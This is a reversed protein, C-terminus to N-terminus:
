AFRATCWTRRSRASIARRQQSSTRRAAAAPRLARHDDREVRGLPLRPRLDRAPPPRLPLGAGLDRPLADRLARLRAVQGHARAPPAHELGRPSSQRRERATHRRPRAPLLLLGRAPPLRRPRTSRSSSTATSTARRSGSRSSAELEDAHALRVVREVKRRPVLRLTASYVVGFLGYGGCVLRFLDRNEDRSCTRAVGDPGVVVLSEVDAVFPGFALGRRPREGLGRRRHLPRGRGDAEPPDGVAHRRARRDAGAVPHGGRGRRPRARRRALPRACRRTDLLVGGSCFQQGGM